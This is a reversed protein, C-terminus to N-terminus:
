MKKYIALGYGLTRTISILIDPDPKTTEGSLIKRLNRATISTIGHHEVFNEASLGSLHYEKRIIDVWDQTNEIEKVLDEKDKERMFILKPAVDQM